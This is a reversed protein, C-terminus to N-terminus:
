MFDETYCAQYEGRLATATRCIIVHHTTFKGAYIQVFIQMTTGNAM